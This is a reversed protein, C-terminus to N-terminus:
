QGTTKRHFDALTELFDEVKVSINDNLEKIPEEMAQFYVDIKGDVWLVIEAYCQSRNWMTEVLVFNLTTEVRTDTIGMKKIKELVMNANDINTM